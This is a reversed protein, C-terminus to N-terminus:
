KTVFIALWIVFYIITLADWYLAASAVLQTNPKTNDGSLSRLGAVLLFILAIVLAVMFSGLITYVLPAAQSGGDIQFGMQRFIFFFQNIIAIGFLASVSLSLLLHRRDNRAAAYVSWQITVVTFLMTWFIVSPAALQIDVGGPIWSGSIELAEARESLYIGLIAGFYMTMCAVGFSTGVLINRARQPPPATYNTNAQSM